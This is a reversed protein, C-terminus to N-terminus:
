VRTKIFEVVDNVTKFTEAERDSIEIDFTDELNMIIEIKDLSDCKLDEVTNDLKIEHEDNMIHFISQIVNQQILNSDM